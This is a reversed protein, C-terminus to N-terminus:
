PLSYLAIHVSDRSVVSSYTLTSPPDMMHGGAVFRAKRTFDMKVDFILHCKIWKYGIPVREGIDLFKFAVRVNKMEKQIVDFWFTTNTERDIALAEEITNPLQIGFKHTRRAYRTKVAKMMYKKQRLVQKVWWCFVPEDQLKHKLAYEALHIPFSNKRENLPHWSSTGDQWQICIDWGKTTRAHAPNHGSELASFDEDSMAKNDNKRHGIIDTFLSEQFGNDDVTIYPKQLQLLGMSPLMAM